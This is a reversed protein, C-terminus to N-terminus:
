RDEGAEPSKPRWAWETTRQEKLLLSELGKAYEQPLEIDRLM